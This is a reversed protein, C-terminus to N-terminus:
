NGEKIDKTKKKIAEQEAFPKRIREVNQYFGRPNGWNATADGM